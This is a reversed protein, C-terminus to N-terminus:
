DARLAVLPDVRTARRAPILSAAAAVALMFASVLAFVMPDGPKVGFLLSVALRTLFAAGVLGVVVGVVALTMGQRLVMLLVGRESAGLAMRIGVERRRETVAYALVGYTGIASLLLAVAAFVGLLTTLFRQRAVSDQFVEDMSKLGVVPVSADADHAIRRIVLALVSKDLTSRVVVNLNAPAFGLAAPV